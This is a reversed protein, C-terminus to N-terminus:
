KWNNPLMWNPAAINKLYHDFFQQSKITYDIANKGSVGHGDRNYELLWVPKKLRRLAVFFEVSQQFPVADDQRNHMLLLPTAVSNVYFIPSNRIYIEPNSWYNAQLNGQEGRLEYMRTRTGGSVGIQGFSSIQNTVGAASSAAAFRSTKTLVYNTEYGGHSHGNLGMRTGDVFSFNDVLYDAASNIADYANQGPQGSPRSYHDIDPVFVLYGRSVFWPINIIDKALRPKIYYYLEDTRYEYYNFIVPYKRKPDFNKPKYLIGLNEKGDFLKYKILESTLWNYESEPYINSIRTFENFDRTLYLNPSSKASQRVVLYLEKTAAKKIVNHRKLWSEASSYTQWNLYFCSDLNLQKCSPRENIELSKYFGSLKSSEQMGIFYRAIEADGSHIEALRLITKTGRGVKGTLCVPNTIGQPDLVWTDYKDYFIIGRDESIWSSFSVYTSRSRESIPEFYGANYFRETIKSIKGSLIDYTLYHGDIENQWFIYRQNKSFKPDWIGESPIIIKQGTLLSVLSYKKQKGTWYTNYEDVYRTEDILLYENGIELIKSTDDNLVIAKNEVVSIGLTTGEDYPEDFNLFDDTYSWIRGFENLKRNKRVGANLGRIIVSKGHSALELNLNPGPLYLDRDDKFIVIPEAKNPEYLMITLHNLSNIMTYAVQNSSDLFNIAGETRTLSTMKKSLFNLCFIRSANYAYVASKTKRLQFAGYEAPYPFEKRQGLDLLIFQDGKKYFVFSGTTNEFVACDDVNKIVNINGNKLDLIGISQNPLKIVINKNRNAFQIIEGGTIDKKFKSDTSKVILQNGLSESGHRYWTYRGDDSIGYDILSDWSTISDFDVVKNQAKVCVNSFLLCQLGLIIVTLKM